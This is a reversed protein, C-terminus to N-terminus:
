HGAGPRLFGGGIGVDGGARRVEGAAIDRLAVVAAAPAGPHEPRKDFAVNFGRPNRCDNIYRAAVAPHLLADVYVKSPRLRRTLASLAPPEPAQTGFPPGALVLPLAERPWHAIRHTLTM